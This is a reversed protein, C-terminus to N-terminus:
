LIGYGGNGNSPRRYSKSRSIQRSPLTREYDQTLKADRALLLQQQSDSLSHWLMTCFHCGLHASDRLETVSDHHTVFSEFSRMGRRQHGTNTIAPFRADTFIKECKDCLNHLLFMGATEELTRQLFRQRESVKRKYQHPEGSDRFLTIGTCCDCATFQRRM